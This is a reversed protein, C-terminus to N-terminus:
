LAKHLVFYKGRSKPRNNVSLHCKTVLVFFCKVYHLNVFSWNRYIQTSQCSPSNPFQYCWQRFERMNNNQTPWRVHAQFMLPPGGTQQHKTQVLQFEKNASSPRIAAKCRLTKRSHLISKNLYFLSM